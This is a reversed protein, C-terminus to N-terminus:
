VTLKEANELATTYDDSQTQSLVQFGCRNCMMCECRVTVKGVIDAMQVTMEGKGCKFCKM